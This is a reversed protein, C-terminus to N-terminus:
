RARDPQDPRQRGARGRPAGAPGRPRRRPGPGGPGARPDRHHGARRLRRRAARRDRPEPRRRGGAGGRDGATYEGEVLALGGATVVGDADVSWDGSKSGKIARQVDKGLRPGAARANVTLKQSVGFDAESASALDMLTVKRVNVEDAVIAGFPELAAVDPAVVTLDQLPLRARLASAKRLSSAVSCIDRARDMAAVLADDQPLDSAVPWDTLHVSRGGTLGRWIEETTFPLLPACVRTLVELTTYLTDFAETSAGSEGDWFRDRSRRIYWNSLVDLFTRVSDCASAVDYADLQAQVREVLQRLTALLYRDLVDQSGTSWRAEYGEGGSAANAYLSFFYWSSWLPLLVQRVGDRIGQETVVLNGGRLIPSSMLFWRMADAGDRDFVESVDPYNRLSKSMKAGDSGLVIGHSVCSQFAPRDFLATAMIHMTYFWGRTQGIYEVIFDGPFHHEFWDANEFPYHVQAFSMSGSDFWVDLVEPVRRMTSRGTPDDPNPRTLEDIYPRHLDTVEVGFDAELEAFSGYVDVRPFNPDDSKWVPIPSGWFRNRSISWDRANSLWKGFQGHKVHEPVWTIQENLEVMRDRFRTVEVFWSSVAKYILPKRCRWCHPYSHVYSEERVLVGAAKLDNIIPRNAEFVQLGQYPPVAATFKAGDDVTLLTPIGAAECALQDDEGFAPAM